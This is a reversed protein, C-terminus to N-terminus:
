RRGTPVVHRRGGPGAAHLHLKELICPDHPLLDDHRPAVRGDLQHGLAESLM